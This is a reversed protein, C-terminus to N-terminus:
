KQVFVKLLLNSTMTYRRTAKQNYLLQQVMCTASEEHKEVFDSDESESEIKVEDEDEYNAIDVQRRRPCEHSKHGPEGCRYCKSVGLKSYPNEKGKTTLTTTM